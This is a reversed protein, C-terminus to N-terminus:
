QPLKLTGEAAFPVSGFPGSSLRGRLAYPWEALPPGGALGMALRAVALASVSVPVTVVLEGFRPVSGREGSVGSALAKRNFELDLAIGDFDVPADNPNQLRLKVAFRAELGEGKLSEVSVVNVRLPEQGPLGACAALALLPLCALRAVAHRRASTCPLPPHM